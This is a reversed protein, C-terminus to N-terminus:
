ARRWGEVPRLGFIEVEVGESYLAHTAAGSVEIGSALILSETCRLVRAGRLPYPSHHVQGSYVTSSDGTPDRTFLVYREVLFHELSGPRAHGEPDVGEPSDIGDLRIELDVGAGPVGPGTAGPSGSGKATRESWYVLGEDGGGGGGGADEGIREVRMTAHHYNLRWRWRAVRVALRNAADLSFFWVGPVGNHHVYTRVNTEDFASVGPLSPFWWPRVGSMRFPVLGVWASGDFTDVELGSPLLTALKDAPVRWHLFALNHWCQYGVPNRNPRRTPALRDPEVM